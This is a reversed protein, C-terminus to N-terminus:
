NVDGCVAYLDLGVLALGRIESALGRFEEINGFWGCYLISAVTRRNHKVTHLLIFIGRMNSDIMVHTKSVGSKTLRRPELITKWENM